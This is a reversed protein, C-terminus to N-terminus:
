TPLWWLLFYVYVPATMTLSDVRDIVGGMGPLRKSSDKVGADRKIASMNIDGFFGAISVLVAILLPALLSQLLGNLAFPGPQELLNTLWPALIPALVAIVLLGGLFGEWTKNPSVVPAIPHRKHTGFLRGTIAQFIDDCETLVVIFLFWGAAGLPGAATAPLSMLLAAHSVGYGLFLMGWVLAGTRRIYDRPDDEALLLVAFTAPAALPLFVAHSSLEGLLILSYNIFILVYGTRVATRDKANAGVMTTIENWALSSALGLLICIGLRGLLLGLSVAIALGWWTRLSAFRKQRLDQEANRLGIFRAISGLLLSIFLAALVTFLAPEPASIM